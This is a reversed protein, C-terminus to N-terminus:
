GGGEFTALVMRNTLEKDICFAVVLGVPIYGLDVVVEVGVASNDLIVLAGLM